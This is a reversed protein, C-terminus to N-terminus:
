RSATGYEARDQAGRLMVRARTELLEIRGLVDSLDDSLQRKAREDTSYRVLDAEQRDTPPLSVRLERTRPTRLAARLRRLCNTWCPGALSRVAIPPLFPSDPWGSSTSLTRLRLQPSRESSM